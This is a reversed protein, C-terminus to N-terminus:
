VDRYLNRTDLIERGEIIRDGSMRFMWAYENEYDEGSVTVARLTARLAVMDGDELIDDIRWDLKQFFSDAHGLLALVGERGDVRGGVHAVPIVHSTSQPFWWRVDEAMFEALLDARSAQMADFFGRFRDKCQQSAM